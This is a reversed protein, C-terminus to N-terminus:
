DRLRFPIGVKTRKKGGARFCHFASVMIRLSLSSVMNKFDSDIMSGSGSIGSTSDPLINFGVPLTQARVRSKYTTHFDDTTSSVPFHSAGTITHPELLESFGKAPSRQASFNQHRFHNMTPTDAFPTKLITHDSDYEHVYTDYPGKKTTAVETTSTSTSLSSPPSLPSTESIGSMGSVTKVYTDEDYKTAETFIRRLTLQKGQFFM